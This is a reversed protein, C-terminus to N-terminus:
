LQQFQDFIRNEPIHEGEYQEDGLAEELYRYAYRISEMETYMVTLPFDLRDSRLGNVLSSLIKDLDNQAQAVPSRQYRINPRDPHAIVMAPSRLGLDCVLKTHTAASATATVVLAPICPFLALIEQIRSILFLLSFM